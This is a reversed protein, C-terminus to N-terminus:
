KLVLRWGVSEDIGRGGQPVLEDIRGNPEPFVASYLEETELCLENFVGAGPRLGFRVAHAWEAFTPPRVAPTLAGGVAAFWQLVDTGTWEEPPVPDGPAGLRACVEASVPAESIYFHAPRGPVLEAPHPVDQGGARTTAPPVLVFRIGGPGDCTEPLNLEHAYLARHLRCENPGTVVFQRCEARVDGTRLVRGAYATLEDSPPPPGVGTVPAGLAAALQAVFEGCGPWRDAHSRRLARAVAPRAEPPLASLDPQETAVAELDTASRQFPFRGTLLFCFSVALSFQDSYRTIKRDVLVEPAAYPLSMEAPGATATHALVQLLSFDALAVADGVILINQPKIDGHQLYRGARGGVTLQQRAIFDLAKAAEAMYGLLEAPPIGARGAGRHEDFRDRLSGDAFEMVIAVADADLGDPCLQGERLFFAAHVGVINAHRVQRLIELARRDKSDAPVVKVAVPFGGPGVARWVVGFGGAGLKRELTYGPLPQPGEWAGAPSPSHPVRNPDFQEPGSEVTHLLDGMKREASDTNM